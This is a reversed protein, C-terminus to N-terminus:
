NSVLVKTKMGAEYHGAVHCAMEITDSKSFKWIIEGTENPALSLVNPDEHQMNPMARMMKAHKLQEEVSGISFEHHLNGTNTVIFRVTEGAKVEIKDHDYRMNDMAKIKMTRNVESAKGPQGAAFQHSEHMQMDHHGGHSHHGEGAFANLSLTTLAAGIFINKKM